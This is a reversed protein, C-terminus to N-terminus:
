PFFIVPNSVLRPINAWFDKVSNDLSTGDFSFIAIGSPAEYLLMSPAKADEVLCDLDLLLSCRKSYLSVVDEYVSLAGIKSFHTKYRSANAQIKRLEERSFIKRPPYIEYSSQPCCIMKPVTAFQFLRWNTTDIGSTVIFDKLLICLFKLHEMECLKVDLLLRALEAVSESVMEPKVDFDHQRLFKILVEVDFDRKGMKSKEEALLTGVHNKPSCQIVECDPVDVCLCTIGLKEEIIAKHLGRGVILKTESGCLRTLIEALNDGISMNAPDFPSPAKECKIFEELCLRPINAWFDKVSNDLSTGDFSFIAIGSPAEYLLMSPAKADEVLCDLDLLLSCRKSYLSVVDEYVSLAGIKSFHTKYGSANAQIKRFEERSFIKRPPYIEYSSRPCCIMKPVTAFQFLRWNTTDIGSTVTFDKLLISLFKLHEMECLKVDLLLRALEAVSESVMEPKVDFDHQRLFKILVEVDFDRKGMKSKEEALLTGVHNKPSCQIVECDPVDVCLCTIGLENEIIAKLQASGVILKTESGCLRTLSKTLNDDISMNALDFPYPAKESKIFEELSLQPIDAWFDKVPNNLYTGDFSFIAIGSPAEYLLMASAENTIKSNEATSPM